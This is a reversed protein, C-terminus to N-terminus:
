KYLGLKSFVTLVFRQDYYSIKYLISYLEQHFKGKRLYYKVYVLRSALDWSREREIAIPNKKISHHQDHEVKESVVVCARKGIQRLKFGLINEEGFLFTREDFLGLQQLTETTFCFFCGSVCNCYIKDEGKPYRHYVSLGLIRRIKYLLVFLDIASDWYSPVRWAFNSIINGRMTILGTSVGISNDNLPELIRVINTNNFYIDPNSIIINGKIGHELIYRLGVNNGASYGKNDEAVLLIVRDSVLPKLKEVSDDTSKNDVILVMDISSFASIMNCFRTTEEWDNYNLVIIINKRNDM